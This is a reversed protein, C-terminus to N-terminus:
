VVVVNHANEVHPLLRSAPSSTVFGAGAITEFWLAHALPYQDVSVAAVDTILVAHPQMANLATTDVRFDKTEGCPDVAVVVDAVSLLTDIDEVLDYGCESARHQEQTEGCHCTIAMGFAACLRKALARHTADFGIIGVRFDSLSGQQDAGSVGRARQMRPALQLIALIIREATTNALHAAQEGAFMTSHGFLTASPGPLGDAADAQMHQEPIAM